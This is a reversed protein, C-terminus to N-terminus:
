SIILKSAINEGTLEEINEFGAVPNVEGLVLQEDAAMWFDFGAYHLKFNTAVKESIEIMPVLTKPIKKLWKTKVRKANSRFSENTNTKEIIYPDNGKLYFLRYEKQHHLYPQLIMRQDGIAWFTELISSLSDFGKILNVGIGKNGRLTKLVFQDIYKQEIKINKKWSNIENKIAVLKEENIIGRIHLSPPTQIQLFQLQTLQREKNRLLEFSRLPNRCEINKSEFFSLISLDLDDFNLSTSRNIVLDPLYETKGNFLLNRTDILRCYFGLKDCENLIRKVSYTNINSTIVTITKKKM